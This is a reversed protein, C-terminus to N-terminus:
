LFRDIDWIKNIEMVDNNEVVDNLSVEDFRQGLFLTDWLLRFFGSVDSPDPLNIGQCQGLVKDKLIEPRQIFYSLSLRLKSLWPEPWKLVVPAVIDAFMKRVLAEDDPDIGLDGREAEAASLPSLATFILWYNVEKM